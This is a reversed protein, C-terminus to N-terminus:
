SQKLDSYFAIKQWLHGLATYVTYLNITERNGKFFFKHPVIKDKEGIAICVTGVPKGITGGGPGAIGSVAIAFDAKSIDLAGKCMYLVTEESVAGYKKLITKPVNLVKEKLNNSYTVFSGLFYQSSEPCAVLKSSLLGGTCSEALVLTKKRKIFKQKIAEEISDETFNFGPFKKLLEDRSKEVKSKEGSFYLSLTGYNPYITFAVKNKKSIAEAVPYVDNEKLLCFNIRESFIKDKNYNKELYPLVWDAFMARMEQPVGPLAVLTSKNTKFMLGPATGLPNKFFLATEPIQSQNELSVLKKGFRKILDNKIEKSSKLDCAFTKTLVKKTIDDCTPGQGGTVIVFDSRKLAQKFSKLLIKENDPLVSHRSVTFGRSILERSLFQSNTNLTVGKVLEDGIVIIEIEM